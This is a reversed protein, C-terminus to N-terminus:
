EKDIKKFNYRVLFRMPLPKGNREAPRWNMERVTKVVSEDLGYGAWRVIETRLISGTADLDVILDVTARVDYLSAKVTYDPKTRRYPVPARFNKTAPSNEEPVEAMLQVGSETIEQKIATRVNATIEVALAPVAGDLLETAKEPNSAEFQPLKWFVLRGTRSGVVYIAAYSEYYEARQFASRRQTASRVLVFFDCGIAAGIRKSEQITLNFPTAPTVSLYAAESLPEDFVTLKETLSSELKEAFAQSADAKDPTLVAVKQAAVSSSFNLAFVCLLLSALNPFYGFHDILRKYIKQSKADKRSQTLKKKIKIIYSAM